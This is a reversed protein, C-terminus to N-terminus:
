HALTQARLRESEEKAIKIEEKTIKIREKMRRCSSFLWSCVRLVLITAVLVLGLMACSVAARAGDKWIWRVLYWCYLEPDFANSSYVFPIEIKTAGTVIALFNSLFNLAFAVADSSPGAVVSDPLVMPSGAGPLHIYSDNSKSANGEFAIPFDHLQRASTVPLPASYDCKQSYAYIYEHHDNHQCHSIQELISDRHRKLLLLHHAAFTKECSWVSSIRSPANVHAAPFLHLAAPERCAQQLGLLHLLKAPSFPPRADRPETGNCHM